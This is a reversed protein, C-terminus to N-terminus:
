RKRPKKPKKRLREMLAELSDRLYTVFKQAHKLQAWVALNPDGCERGTHWFASGGGHTDGEHLYALYVNRGDCCRMEDISIGGNQVEYHWGINEWVRLKWGTGEMRRLLQRGRRTAEQKTM